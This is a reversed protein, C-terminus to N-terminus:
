YRIVVCWVVISTSGLGVTRVTLGPSNESGALLSIPAVWRNTFSVLLKDLIRCLYPGLTLREPRDHGLLNYGADLLTYSASCDLGITGIPCDM